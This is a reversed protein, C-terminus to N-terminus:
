VIYSYLRFSNTQKVYSYTHRKIVDDFYWKVEIDREKLERIISTVAEYKYKHYYIPLNSIVYHHTKCIEEDTLM